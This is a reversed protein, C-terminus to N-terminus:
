EEEPPLATRQRRISELAQASGEGREVLIHLARERIALMAHQSGLTLHALDYERVRALASAPENAGLSVEATTIAQQAAREYGIGADIRLGLEDWGSSPAWAAAYKLDSLLDDYAIRADEWRLASALEEIIHYRTRVHEARALAAHDNGLAKRALTLLRMDHRNAWAGRLVALAREPQGDRILRDARTLAQEVADLSLVMASDGVRARAQRLRARLRTPAREIGDSWVLVGEVARAQIEWGIKGEPSVVVQALPILYPEIHGHTDINWGDVLALEALLRRGVEPWQEIRIVVHFSRCIDRLADLRRGEYMYANPMAACSAFRELAESCSQAHITTIIPHDSMLLFLIAGAEEARTEGPVVLDPTQRLANYVAQGYASRDQGTNLKERTWTAHNRVGIEFTNDEITIIHAAGGVSNILAELLATKGSGTSGAILFSCRGRALLTLLDRLPADITGRVLLDNLDWAGSRGRRICVLPEASRPPITAHMRTGLAVPLTQQPNAADLRVGLISSLLAVRSTVQETSRFTEPALVFRKGAEMVLITCGNIKVEQVNPDNLYRQAPGWGLTEAFLAQFVEDDNPIAALAGGRQRDEAIAGRMVGRLATNRAEAPAFPDLFERPLRERLLDQIALLVGPDALAQERALTRAHTGMLAGMGGDEVVRGLFDGNSPVSTAARTPQAPQESM